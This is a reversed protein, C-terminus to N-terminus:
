GITIDHGLDAASNQAVSQEKDLELEVIVARDDFWMRDIKDALHEEAAKRTSYAARASINGIMKNEGVIVFVKM